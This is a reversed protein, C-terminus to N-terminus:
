RSAGKTSGAAKTADTKTTKDDGQDDDVEVTRGGAQDDLTETLDDRTKDSLRGLRDIELLAAATQAALNRAM